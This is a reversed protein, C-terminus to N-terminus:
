CGARIFWYYRLLFRNRPAFLLGSGRILTVARGRAGTTRQSPAGATVTVLLRNRVAGRCHMVRGYHGDAVSRISRVRGRGPTKPRTVFDCGEVRPQKRGRERAVGGFGAEGFRNGALPRPWASSDSQGVACAGRCSLSSHDRIRNARRAVGTRPGARWAMHRNPGALDAARRLGLSCRSDRDGRDDSGTKAFRRRNEHTWKVAGSQRVAACARPPLRRAVLETEIQRRLSNLHGPHERTM